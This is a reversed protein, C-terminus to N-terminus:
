RPVRHEPSRAAERLVPQAEEAPDPVVHFEIERAGDLAEAVAELLPAMFHDEIWYQHMENPVRIVLRVADLAHVGARSFWREMSHAGVRGRLRERVKEWAQQEPSTVVSGSFGLPLEEGSGELGRKLVM